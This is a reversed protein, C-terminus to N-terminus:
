LRGKWFELLLGIGSNQEGQEALQPVVRSQWRIRQLRQMLSPAAHRCAMSWKSFYRRPVEGEMLVNIGSHRKSQQVRHFASSVDEPAGELYQLFREGDFLLVGTVGAAENLATADVLIDDLYRNDAEPHATSTYVLAHTPAANSM